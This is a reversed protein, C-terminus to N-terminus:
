SGTAERTDFGSIAVSAVNAVEQAFAPTSMTVAASAAVLVCYLMDRMRLGMFSRIQKSSAFPLSESDDQVDTPM